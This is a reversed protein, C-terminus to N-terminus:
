AREVAFVVIELLAKRPLDPAPVRSIKRSPVPSSNASVPIDPFELFRRLRPRAATEIVNGLQFSRM